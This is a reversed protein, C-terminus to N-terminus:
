AAAHRRTQVVRFRNSVFAADCLCANAAPNGGTAHYDSFAATQNVFVGGLLNISLSVKADFAAEEMRSIVQDRTSYVSWTIAGKQRALATARRISDESSDTAILFSIPGFLEQAYADAQQKADVKLMLPTRIRASPFQPHQRAESTLVPEGLSAAREIREATETSQIAGLVNVARENDSLFQRVGDALAEAVADFSLRGQDTDIGERPIFIDQPTTCMQGSYLSLSFALNQVMAQLNDTSDIVIANVGAKETYVQAHRCNEELWEGFASSGTFDIVGIEERMALEKTIPADRTDAALSVLWPDFGSERLVQQCVEVTIALPLIAAPHPKVIVPNGTALSAFLGPYGNWTPFTSVGIMLALGRPVIHFQKEMELPDRKGQPKVWRAQLASRTMAEYAYAVAELGRDQAHPGGAQFAMAFAQGTTHMVAHAMEFSRQNLRHLVELCIGTRVDSGADRWAPLSKCMADILADAHVKPYRIGLEFGYPSLEGGTEGSAGPMELSFTQNLRAKFAAEGSAPADEGYFKGSPAEPYPSWYERSRSAGLAQQLTDRHQAFFDTSM